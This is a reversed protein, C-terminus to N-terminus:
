RNKSVTAVTNADKSYSSPPPPILSGNPQFHFASNTQALRHQHLLALLAQPPMPMPVACQGQQQQMQEAIQQPQQSQQALNDVHLEM